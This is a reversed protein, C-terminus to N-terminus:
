EPFLQLRLLILLYALGLLLLTWGEFRLNKFSFQSSPGEDRLRFKSLLIPTEARYRQYERGWRLNLEWEEANLILGYEVLWLFLVLGTLFPPPALALLVGLTLLLNGLYLPHRLHRYPGETILRDATIIRGRSIPGIYGGAWCRIAVGILILPLSLLIRPITPTAVMWLCLFAVGGLLGRHRYLWRGIGVLNPAPLWSLNM